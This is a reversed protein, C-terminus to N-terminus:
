AAPRPVTERYLMAPPQIGAERFAEVVRETVDTELAKEFRVDMVYVKARLRLAFYQEHIVSNVLVVWPKDLYAYTSTTIAEKVIRKATPLDQDSGIFFDMQILMNLEGANGSSVVDNLFKNNPITVVNDDLTVLRVSRLGISQIEGYIGDFTIRDGVQFPRDVLLIIGAIMSAALDKLAFGVTVAITGGLALMMENTLAFVVPISAAFAGIFLLFRVLTAIQHILLRRDVLRNGLGQATRHVLQVLLWAIGFILLATPIGGPRLFQLFQGANDM